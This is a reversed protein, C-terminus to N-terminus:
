DASNGSSSVIGHMPPPRAFSSSSTSSFSPSWAMMDLIRRAEREDDEMRELQDKRKESVARRIIAKRFHAPLTNRKLHADAVGQRCVPCKVTDNRVWHYILNMASFKHGCMLQLANLEPREKDFCVSSTLISTTTTTAAATTTTIDMEHKKKNTEM